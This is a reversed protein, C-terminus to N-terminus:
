LPKVTHPHLFRTHDTISFSKHWHQITEITYLWSFSHDMTRYYVQDLRHQMLFYLGIFFIVCFVPRHLGVPWSRHVWHYPCLMVPVQVCQCLTERDRMHIIWSFLVHGTSSISGHSYCTKNIAYLSLTPVYQRQLTVTAILIVTFNSGRPHQVKHICQNCLM